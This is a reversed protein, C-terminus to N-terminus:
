QDAQKGFDAEIVQALGDTPEPEPDLLAGQAAAEEAAQQAAAAQEAMGTSIVHRIGELISVLQEPSADTAIHFMMGGTETMTPRILIFQDNRTLPIVFEPGQGRVFPDYTVGEIPVVGPSLPMDPLPSDMESVLEAELSRIREMKEADQRHLAERVEAVQEDTMMEVSGDENQIM